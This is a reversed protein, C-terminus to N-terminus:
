ADEKAETEKRLVDFAAKLLNRASVMRNADSGRVSIQELLTDAQILFDIANNM